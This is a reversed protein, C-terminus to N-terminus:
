QSGSGKKTKLRFSTPIPQPKLGIPLNAIGPDGIEQNADVPEVGGGVPDFFRLRIRRLLNGFM